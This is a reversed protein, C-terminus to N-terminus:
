PQKQCLVHLFSLIGDNVTNITLKTENATGIKPNVETVHLGALLGSGALERGIALVEDRTLGGPVPSGVSPAFEPDIANVELSVHVPKNRLPNIRLLAENVAGTVGLLRITNMDFVPVNLQGILETESPDLARTAFLAVNEPPISPKFEKMGSCEEHQSKLLTSNIVFSLPMRNMDGTVTSTITHLAGHAGIHLVAVNPVVADHGLISGIAVAHDGGLVLPFFKDDLVRKM